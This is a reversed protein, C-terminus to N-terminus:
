RCKTLDIALGSTTIQRRLRARLIMTLTPFLLLEVAPDPYAECTLNFDYETLGAFTASDNLGQAVLM